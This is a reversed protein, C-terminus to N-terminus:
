ERCFKLFEDAPLPKSIYYGQAYDCDLRRLAALTERSEIGEAVVSLDFSKAINIAHEVIKYDRPDDLMGMVFTRDIKLEDAPIEKLYALSSYGTGFDDISVSCGLERIATLVEHSVDRDDMLATETVELTLREPAVGWISTASRLLEVIDRSKILTPTINVALTLESLVDRWESLMRCATQIAFQTLEVIQGTSEALDVFIEPSIPGIDPDHWRSLAEAAVIEGSKILTKPQLHLELDGAELADKLKSELGWEDFLRVASQQEFFCLYDDGRRADLCAVEAMRLLDHPEDGQDPGLAVGIITKLQIASGTKPGVQRAVREIKRAALTAHGRNKLGSLLVAFKCESIRQITDHDRCIGALEEQFEDVLKAAELHGVSACIREIDTLWVLLVAVNKGSRLSQAICRTTQAIGDHQNCPLSTTAIAMPKAM